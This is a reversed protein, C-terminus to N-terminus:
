EKDVKGGLLLVESSWAIFKSQARFIRGKGRLLLM